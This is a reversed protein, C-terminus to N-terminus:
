QHRGASSGNPLILIGFRLKGLIVRDVSIDREHAHLWEIVQPDPTPKTPESLVNADVLYKV